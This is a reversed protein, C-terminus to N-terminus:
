LNMELTSVNDQSYFVKASTPNESTYDFSLDLSFSGNNKLRFAHATWIATLNEGYEVHYGDILGGTGLAVSIALTHRETYFVVLTATSAGLIIVILLLM